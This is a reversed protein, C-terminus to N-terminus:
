HEISFFVFITWTKNCLYICSDLELVNVKTVRLDTFFFNSRRRVFSRPRDSVIKETRWRYEFALSHSINLVSPIRIDPWHQVSQNLYHSHSFALHLKQADWHNIRMVLTRSQSRSLVSAIILYHVICLCVCLCVSSLHWRSSYVPKMRAQRLM